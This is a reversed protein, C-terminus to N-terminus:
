FVKEHLNVGVIFFFCSNGHCYDSSTRKNQHNWTELEVRIRFVVTHFHFQRPALKGSQYFFCCGFFLFFFLLLNKAFTKIMQYIFKFLIQLQHINLFLKKM